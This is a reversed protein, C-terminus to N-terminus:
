VAACLLELRLRCLAARFNECHDAVYRVRVDDRRLVDEEDALQIWDSALLIELEYKRAESVDDPVRLAKM